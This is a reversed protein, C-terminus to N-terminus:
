STLLIVTHQVNVGKKGGDAEREQAADGEQGFRCAEIKFREIEDKERVFAKVARIGILNEQVTGNLLDYNKLMEQFRPFAKKM